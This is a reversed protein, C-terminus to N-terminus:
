NGERAVFIEMDKKSASYGIEYIRNNQDYGIATVKILPVNTDMNLNDSMEETPMIASIKRKNERPKVDTNYRIYNSFSKEFETLDPFGIVRAPYYYHEFIIPEERLLRVRKVSIIDGKGLLSRLEPDPNKLVEYHLCKTNIEGLKHLETVSGVNIESNYSGVETVFYGRGVEFRILGKHTLESYVKLITNEHVSYDNAFKKKTPLKEGSKYVGNRIDFELEAIIDKYKKENM